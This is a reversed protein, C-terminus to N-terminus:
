QALVAMQPSASKETSCSKLLTLKGIDVTSLGGLVCM